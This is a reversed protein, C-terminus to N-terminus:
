RIRLGKASASYGNDLTGIELPICSLFTCKHILAHGVLLRLRESNGM